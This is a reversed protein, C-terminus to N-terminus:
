SRSGRDARPPPRRRRPPLRTALRELNAELEHRGVGDALMLATVIPDDLVDVLAPERSRRECQITQSKSM